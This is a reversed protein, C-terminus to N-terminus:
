GLTAELMTVDMAAYEALLAASHEFFPESAAARLDPCFRGLFPGLHQNLFGVQAKLGVEVAPEDQRQAAEWSGGAMAAMFELELAIHDAPTGPEVPAYGAERYLKAVAQTEPGFLAHSQGLYYSAYPVAPPLGPGCTLRSLEGNLEDLLNGSEEGLRAQMGVLADRLAPPADPGAELGALEHLTNATMPFTFIRALLRYMAVRAVLWETM